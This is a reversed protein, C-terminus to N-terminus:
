GRLIVKAVDGRCSSADSKAPSSRRGKKGRWEKAAAGDVGPHEGLREGKRLPVQPVARAGAATEGWRRLARM